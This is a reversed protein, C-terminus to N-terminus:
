GLSKNLSSLGPKPQRGQLPLFNFERDFFFSTTWTYDNIPGFGTMDVEIFGQKRLFAASEPYWDANDLIILGGKKLYGPAKQAALFREEGDVIIIDFKCSPIEIANVYKTLDSEFILECNSPLKLKILGYWANDSEVAIVKHAVSAWFLTSNGSGFEFVVKDRMDLQRLYDLAPYTYWPIPQNNKDICQKLAFTKQYGYGRNLIKDAARLTKIRTPLLRYILGKLATM